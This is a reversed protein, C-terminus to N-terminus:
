LVVFNISWDGDVKVRYSHGFNWLSADCLQETSQLQAWDSRAKARGAVAHRVFRELRQFQHQAHSGRTRRFPDCEELLPLVGLQVRFDRDHAFGACLKGERKQEEVLGIDRHIECRFVYVFQLEAPAKSGIRTGKKSTNM